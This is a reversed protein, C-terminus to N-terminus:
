AAVEYANATKTKWFVLFKVQLKHNPGSQNDGYPTVSELVINQVLHSGDEDALHYNPWTEFLKVLDAKFMAKRLSLDGDQSLVVDAWVESEWSDVGLSRDRGRANLSTDRGWILNVGEDQRNEFDHAELYVHLIDSNFGNEQRVTKLLRQMAKLARYDIPVPVVDIYNGTDTDDELIKSVDLTIGGGIESGGVSELQIPNDPQVPLLEILFHTPLDAKTLPALRFSSREPITITSPLGAYAQLVSDLVATESSEKAVLRLNLLVDLMMSVPDASLMGVSGITPSGPAGIAVLPVTAPAPEEGEPSWAATAYRNVDGDRDEPSAYAIFRRVVDFDVPLAGPTLGHVVVEMAGPMVVAVPQDAYAVPDSPIGSTDADRDAPSAYATGRFPYQGALTVGADGVVLARTPDAPDAMGFRLFTSVGTSPGPVWTAGNDVSVLCVGNQGVAYVYGNAVFLRLSETTGSTRATWTTSSGAPIATRIDGNAGAAILVGNHFVLSYLPNSGLGTVIPTSAGLGSSYYAVPTTGSGGVTYVNTGNTTVMAFLPANRLLFTWSVGGDTTYYWGADFLGGLGQALVGNLADLWLINNVPRNNTSTYSTWTIGDASHLFTGNAGGVWFGQSIGAAGQYTVTNLMVSVGSARTTWSDAEGTPSTQIAGGAGVRVYVGAGYAVCNWQTSGSTALDAFSVIGPATTLRGYRRSGSLLSLGSVHGGGGSLEDKVQCYMRSVFPDLVPNPVLVADIFEEAYGEGPVIETSEDHSMEVRRALPDLLTVESIRSAAPGTPLNQWFAPGLYRAVETTKAADSFLRFGNEQERFLSWGLRRRGTIGSLSASTIAGNKDGKITITTSM